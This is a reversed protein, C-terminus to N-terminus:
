QALRWLADMPVAEPKPGFPLTREGTYLVYGAVFENDPKQALNRLGTLDATRVTAAAKVEVGVVRGDPTPPPAYEM